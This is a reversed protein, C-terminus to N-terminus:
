GAERACAYKRALRWPRLWYHTWHLSPPFPHELWDQPTPTVALWFCYRLRDAFRERMRLHWRVTTALTQPQSTVSWGAAFEEALAAVQPDNAARARLAEPVPAHFHSGVLNLAVLLMREAGAERAAREIDPWNVKPNRHILAALACVQELKNWTHKAGHAVLLLLLDDLAFTHVEFGQLRVRESRAWLTEASVPFSFHRARPRWQLDIRTLGNARIFTYECEMRLLDAEQHPLFAFEPRYGLAALVPKVRLVDARHVFIDLDFCTRLSIGGYAQQALMQGKFFLMPIGAARLRAQVRLLEGFQLLARQTAAAQVERLRALVPAPLALAPRDLLAAAVLPAVGQAAALTLLQKWGEAEAPLPTSIKAASQDAQSTVAPCQRLLATLATLQEPPTM